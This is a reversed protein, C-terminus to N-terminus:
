TERLDLEEAFLFVNTLLKSTMMTTVFAINMGVELCKEFRCKKCSKRTKSDIVCITEPPIAAHKFVKFLESKVSRQFFGRCSPCIGDAGYFNHKSANESKCVKCQM